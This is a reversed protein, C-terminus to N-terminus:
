KALRWCSGIARSGDPINHFLNKTGIRRKLRTRTEICPSLTSSKDASLVSPKSAARCLCLGLKFHSHSKFRFRMSCCMNLFALSAAFSNFFEINKKYFHLFKVRAKGQFRGLSYWSRQLVYIIQPTPIACDTYRSASRPTPTRTGTPALIKAEGRRGSRSHPGGLMRNLPYLPSKRRPYLPRPTFSVV